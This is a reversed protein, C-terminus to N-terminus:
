RIRNANTYVGLQKVQQAINKSWNDLKKDVITEFKAFDKETGTFAIQPAGVEVTISGTNNVASYKPMQFKPIAQEIFKSPAKSFDSLKKTMENTFITDGGKSYFLDGKATRILETGEEDITKWGPASNDTGKAYALKYKKLNPSSTNWKQEWEGSGNVWYYLNSKWDKVYANKAMAGGAQLYYWKGKDNVWESSKMSGDKNLYYWENNVKRWGTVIEGMKKGDAYYWKGDDKIWGSKNVGEANAYYRKGDVTFFGGSKVAGTKDAYSIGKKTQFFGTKMAGSYDLYYKKGNITQWGTAMSGDKNLYYWKGKDKIWQNSQMKGNADTHYWKNNDKNWKNGIVIGSGDSLYWDKGIKTWNKKTQGTGNDVVTTQGSSNKALSYRAKDVTGSGSFKTVDKIANTYQQYANKANEWPKMLTDTLKQGYIDALKGLEDYVKTYDGKVISLSDKITKEQSDLSTELEKIKDEQKEKFDDYEKQLADLQKDTQYDELYETYKKKIDAKQSELDKVKALDERSGSANYSNIQKQIDALQKEYDEVQRTHSRYDSNDQLAEKRKDILESYADIATNIGEKVLSLIADRASKSAKQADRQKDKYDALEENYKDQTILGADLERKLNNLATDYQATQKKANELQVAYLGLKTIGNETIIGDDDFSDLDDIMDVVDSLHEQTNELKTNVTNWGDWRIERLTEALKAAETRANIISQQMENLKQTWENYQDSGKKIMGSKILKDFEAKVLSYERSITNATEGYGAMMDKYNQAVPKAGVAENYDNKASLLSVYSEQRDVIKDYDDVINELKNLSYQLNNVVLEDYKRNLQLQKEYWGQYETIKEKLDKDTITEIDVKGKRIADKYAASLSSANMKEGYKDYAKRNTKQADSNMSLMRDLYQNQNQWSNGVIDSMADNLHEISEEFRSQWIEIWDFDEKFEEDSGSAYASSLPKSALKRVDPVTGNAYAKGHGSAKGHEMLSKTQSANLVIDGKKLAQMHMGGPILFWSNDRIISETGMENVLATEDQELAVKNGKAYAPRLNLVNYATGNAHAPSTLTGSANAKVTKEVRTVNVTQNIPPLSTPHFGLVYNAVGTASPVTTPYSGLRYNAVGSADPVDSPSNGLNYDATGTISPSEEPVAINDITGNLSVNQGDASSTDINNITGNLPIDTAEASSSDISSLKGKVNVDQTAIASTDINSIKANVDVNKNELGSTDVNGVKADVTVEQTFLSNGNGQSFIPEKTEAQLTVTKNEVSSTDLNNIKGTVPAELPELTEQTLDGTLKPKVDITPTTSQLISTDLGDSLKPKVPLEVPNQTFSENQINSQLEPEVPIKLHNEGFIGLENLPLRPQLEVELSNEPIQPIVPVEIPNEVLNELGSLPLKPNMEVNLSQAFESYNEAPYNPTITMMQSMKGAFESFKSDNINPEVDVGIPDENHTEVDVIEGTLQMRFESNNREALENYQSVLDKVNVESGSLSQISEAMQGMKESADGGNKTIKSIEDSLKEVQSIKDNINFTSGDNAMRTLSGSISALDNFQTVFSGIEGGHEIIKGVESEITKLNNSVNGNHELKNWASDFLNNVDTTAKDVDFNIEAEIDEVGFEDAFSKIQEQIQNATDELGAEQAQKKYENMTKAASIAAKKQSEASENQEKILAKTNDITEVIDENYDRIKKESEDIATQNGFTHDGATTKYGQENEGTQSKLKKNRKSEKSADSILSGIRGAGEEVNSIINNDIGYDRLEGFIAGVAEAGIGLKQGVDDLNTINFDWRGTEKNFEAMKQGTANELGSIDNLFNNVGDKTDQFYREFKPYNEKYNNLDDSATPSLWSAFTKFDDTGIKGKEVAKKVSDYNNLLTDYKDGANSSELAEQWANYYQDTGAASQFDKYDQIAKKAQTNNKIEGDASLNWLIEMDGNSLSNIFKEGLGDNMLDLRKQKLDTLAKDLGTSTKLVDKNLSPVKKSIKGILDDSEKLYENYTLDDQNESLSFLKELDDQTSTNRLSHVLNNKWKTVAKLDYDGTNKDFFGLNEANKYEMGEVLENIVNKSADRLTDFSTDAQLLSQIYPKSDDFASNLQKEITKGYELVQQMADEYEQTGAKLKDINEVGADKLLERFAKAEEDTLFSTEESLGETYKKLQKQEKELNTKNKKKTESFINGEGFVKDFTDILFNDVDNAWGRYKSSWSNSQVLSSLLKEGQKSNYAEQIKSLAKRQQLLGSEEKNGTAIKSVKANFADAIDRGNDITEEALLIKQEKLAKNLSEVNTGTKIIPNGLSDYGSVLDPFTEAIKSALSLYEDYEDTTLGKNIGNSIGKQLYSFREGYKEVVDSSNSLTTVNNKYTTVAKDGAEIASEQKNSYNDWAKSVIDIGKSVAYYIAMNAAMSAATTGVSKFVSGIKSTTRSLLSTKKQNEGLIYGNKELYKNWSEVSLKSKDTQSIYGKMAKKQTDSLVINQSNLYGDLTTGDHRLYRFAGILDTRSKRNEYNLKTSSYIKSLSSTIKSLFQRM